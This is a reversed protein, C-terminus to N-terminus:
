ILAGFQYNKPPVIPELASKEEPIQWYFITLFITVIVILVWVFLYIEMNVLVLVSGGTFIYNTTTNNGLQLVASDTTHSVSIRGNHVHLKQSPDDIGIGVNGNMDIRMREIHNNSVSASNNTYFGLGGRFYSEEPQFYIGASTKTYTNGGVKDYKTKM